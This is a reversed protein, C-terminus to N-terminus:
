AYNKAHYNKVGKEKLKIARNFRQEDTEEDSDEPLVTGAHKVILVLEDDKKIFYDSM